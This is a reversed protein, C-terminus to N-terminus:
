EKVSGLDLFAGDNMIVYDRTDVELDKDGDYRIIQVAGMGYGMPGRSYYHAELKYPFALPNIIRFCEPCDTPM